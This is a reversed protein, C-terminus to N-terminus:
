RIVIKGRGLKWFQKWKDKSFLIQKRCIMDNEPIDENYFKDILKQSELNVQYLDYEWKNRIQKLEKDLDTYKKM